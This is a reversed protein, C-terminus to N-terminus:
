ATKIAKKLIIHLTVFFRWVNASDCPMIKSNQYKQSIHSARSAHSIHSIQTNTKNLKNIDFSM